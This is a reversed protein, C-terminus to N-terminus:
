AMEILYGAFISLSLLVTDLKQVLVRLAGGVIFDEEVEVVEELPGSDLM